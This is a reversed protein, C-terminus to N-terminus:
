ALTGIIVGLIIALLALGGILVALVVFPAAWAVISRTYDVNNAIAVGKVYILSGWVWAVLALIGGCAAVFPIDPLADVIRLFYPAFSLGALSLHQALTATGGLLKAVLLVMLAYGFWGALATFPSGLWTGFVKVIRSPIRGIPPHIRAIEDMVALQIRTQATLTAVAEQPLLEELQRFSRLAERQADADSAAQDRFVNACGGLGAVLTVLIVMQLVQWFGDRGQKIAEFTSTQLRLAGTILQLISAM